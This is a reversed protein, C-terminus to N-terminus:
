NRCYFDIILQMMSKDYDGKYIMCYDKFDILNDQLFKPMKQLDDNSLKYFYTIDNSLIKITNMKYIRNHM